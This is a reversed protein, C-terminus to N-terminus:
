FAFLLGATLDAQFAPNVNFAIACGSGGCVGAGSLNVITLYGRADFRLGVHRTLYTKVGGGVGVAFRVETDGPVAYRTLGLLGSLFPRTRGDGLDRSGGVLLQDTVATVTTLPDFLGSRVRLPAEQRSYVGEVKLGDSAPGLVVNVVVGLSPGGDEDVVTGSPIQAVNAGFRYGGFPTIEVTQARGTAVAALVIAVVAVARVDRRLTGV